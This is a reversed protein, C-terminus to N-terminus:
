TEQTSDITERSPHTVLGCFQPNPQATVTSPYIVLNGSNVKDFEYALVLAQGTRM